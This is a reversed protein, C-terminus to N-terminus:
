CSSGVCTLYRATGCQDNSTSLQLRFDILWIQQLVFPVHPMHRVGCTGLACGSSFSPPACPPVTRPVVCGTLSRICAHLLSPSPSTATFSLTLSHSSPAIVLPSLLSVPDPPHSFVRGLCLARAAAAPSSRLTLLLASCAIRSRLLGAMTPGCTGLPVDRVSGSHPFDRLWLTGTLSAGSARPPTQDVPPDM